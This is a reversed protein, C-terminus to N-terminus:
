QVSFCFSSQDSQYVVVVFPHDIETLINKEEFVYIESQSKQFVSKDIVKMAYINGSDIKRVALVKGYSGRGVMGLAEFSDFNISLIAQSHYTELIIEQPFHDLTAEPKTLIYDYNIIRNRTRLCVVSGMDFRINKVQRKLYANFLWEVNLSSCDESAVVIKTPVITSCDMITFVKSPSNENLHVSSSKLSDFNSTYGNALVEELHDVNNFESRQVKEDTEIASLQKMDSYTTSGFRGQVANSEM